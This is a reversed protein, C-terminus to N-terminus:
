LVAEANISICDRRNDAFVALRESPKQLLIVLVLVLLRTHM